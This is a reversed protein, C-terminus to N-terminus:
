GQLMKVLDDETVITCGHEKHAAAMWDAHMKAGAHPGHEIKHENFRNSVIM